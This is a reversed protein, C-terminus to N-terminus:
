DWKTISNYVFKIGVLIGLIDWTQFPKVGFHPAVINNWIFWIIVSNVCLVGFKIVLAKFFLIALEKRKELTDDIEIM